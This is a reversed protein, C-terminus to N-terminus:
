AEASTGPRPGLGLKERSEPDSTWYNGTVREHVMILTEMDARRADCEGPGLVRRSRVNRISCMVADADLQLRKEALQSTESLLARASALTPDEPAHEVEARPPVVSYPGEARRAYNADSMSARGYRYVFLREIDARWEFACMEEAALTAEAVAEATIVGDGDRLLDKGCVVDNCHGWGACLDRLLLNVDDALTDGWSRLLWDNAM